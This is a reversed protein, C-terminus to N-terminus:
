QWYVELHNDKFGQIFRAIDLVTPEKHCRGTEHSRNYLSAEIRMEQPIDDFMVMLTNM